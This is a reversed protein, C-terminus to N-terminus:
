STIKIHKPPATKKQVRHINHEHTKNYIKNYGKTKKIETDTKAKWAVTKINLQMVTMIMMMRNQQSKSLTASM